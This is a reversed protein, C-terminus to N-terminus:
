APDPRPWSAPIQLDTVLPVHDSLGPAVWSAFDGVSVSTVFPLWARPLFCFDIHYRLGHETRDRWYLTADPESGFAVGKIEHYASELGLQRALDVLSAFSHPKNPRDWTVNNNLDGALVTPVSAITAAHGQIAPEVQRTPFEPSHARCRHNMCWAALLFFPTPGQVSVPAIWELRRDYTSSLSISYPHFAFVGLGKNPNAGVWVMEPVGGAGTRKSLVEPKACEPIVAIDPALAQLADLKRHLAMNANWVVIRLPHTTAATNRSESDALRRGGTM